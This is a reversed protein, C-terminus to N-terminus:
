PRLAPTSREERWLEAHLMARSDTEYCDRCWGDLTEYLEALRVETLFGLFGPKRQSNAYRRPSIGGVFCHAM